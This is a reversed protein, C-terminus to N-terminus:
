AARMLRREYGRNILNGVAAAIVSLVIMALWYPPDNSIFMRRAEASAEIYVGPVQYVVTKGSTILASSVFTDILWILGILAGMGLFVLLLRELRDRVSRPRNWDWGLYACGSGIVLSLIVLMSEFNFKFVILRNAFLGVLVSLGLGLFAVHVDSTGNLVRNIWRKLRLSPAVLARGCHACYRADALGEYGCRWCVTMDSM